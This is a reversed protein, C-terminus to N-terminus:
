TGKTLVALRQASTAGLPEYVVGSDGKRPTAHSARGDLIDAPIGANFATCLGDGLFHACGLCYDALNM